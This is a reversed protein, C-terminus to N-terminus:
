LEIGELILKAKEMYLPKLSKVEPDFWEYTEQLYRIANEALYEKSRCNPDAKIKEGLKQTLDQTMLHVAHANISGIQLILYQDITIGNTTINALAVNWTERLMYSPLSLSIQYLEERIFERHEAKEEPDEPEEFMEKDFDYGEYNFEDSRIYKVWEMEDNPKPDLEFIKFQNYSDVSPRVEVKMDDYIMGVVKEIMERRSLM